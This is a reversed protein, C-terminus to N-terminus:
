KRRSLRVVYNNDDITFYMKPWEPRARVVYLPHGDDPERGIESWKAQRATLKPFGGYCVRLQLMLDTPEIRPVDSHFKAPIPRRADRTPLMEIIIAAIEAVCDRM